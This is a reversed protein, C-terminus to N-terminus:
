DVLGQSESLITVGPVAALQKLWCESSRDTLLQFIFSQKVKSLRIVLNFHTFESM